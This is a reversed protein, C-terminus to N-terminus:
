RARHLSAWRDVGLRGVSGVLLLLLFWLETTGGSSKSGGADTSNGGTPQEMAEQNDGIGDGDSDLWEDKNLPFADEKDSVGDSDTDYLKYDTGLAVEQRYSLGDNDDDHFHLDYARPEFGMELELGDDLGDGDSDALNLEIGIRFEELNSVGDGDLDELADGAVTSQLGYITEVGDPIGDGDTDPLSMKGVFVEDGYQPSIIGIFLNSSVGGFFVSMKGPVKIKEVNDSRGVAIKLIYNVTDSLLGDSGGVYCYGYHCGWSSQDQTFDFYDLLSISNVLRMDATLFHIQDVGFTRVAFFDGQKFAYRSVAHNFLTKVELTEHDISVIESRNEDPISLEILSHSDSSVIFRAEEINERAFDVYRPLQSFRKDIYFVQHPNIKSNATDGGSFGVFVGHTGAKHWEPPNTCEGSQCIPFEDVLNRQEYYYGRGTGESELGFLLFGRSYPVLRNSYVPPELKLAGDVSRFLLMPVPAAAGVKATLDLMYVFDGAIPAKMAVIATSATPFMLAGLDYMEDSIANHVAGSVASENYSDSEPVYGARKTSHYDFVQDGDVLYSLADLYEVGSRYPSIAEPTLRVAVHALTLEGGAAPKCCAALYIRNDKKLIGSLRSDATRSDGNIDKLLQYQDEEFNVYWPEFGIEPTYVNFINNSLPHLKSALYFYNYANGEFVVEFLNLGADFKKVITYPYESHLTGGDSLLYLQDNQSLLEGSVSDSVVEVAKDFDTRCVGKDRLNDAIADCYFYYWGAAYYISAQEIGLGEVGAPFDLKKVEGTGSDIKILRRIGIAMVSGAHNAAVYNASFDQHLKKTTEATGRTEWFEGPTTFYLGENSRVVDNIYGALEGAVQTIAGDNLDMRKLLIRGDISEVYFLGSSFLFNGPLQRFNQLSYETVSKSAIDVAFVVRSYQVAVFGTDPSAAIKGGSVGLGREIDVVYTAQDSEPDIVWVQALAGSGEVRLLLVVRSGDTTFDIISNVPVSQIPFTGSQTGDTVWLTKGAASESAEFYVKNGIMVSRNAEGWYSSSDSGVARKEYDEILRFTDAQVVVPILSCFILVASLWLNAM